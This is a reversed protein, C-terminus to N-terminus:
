VQEKEPYLAQALRQEAIYFVIWGKSKLHQLGQLVVSEHGRAHFNFM